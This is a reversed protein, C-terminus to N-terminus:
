GAPIRRELARTLRAIPYSHVFFLALLLLYFPIMLDPRAEAAAAARVATLGDQIGVISILTTAMVLIAYLNMWPPLMRRFAQPLIVMLLVQRRSFALSEASEWQALPISLLGGRVIEAVNAAVPLSLGVVAKMWAPVPIALGLVHVEFPLLFMVYFLLVLWPANRLAQILLWGVARMPPFAAVQTLGLPLGAATGLAMALMGVLINFLFGGLVFPLWKLLIALANAQAAGTPHAAAVTTLLVGVALLLPWPRALVHLIGAGPPSASPGPPPTVGKM